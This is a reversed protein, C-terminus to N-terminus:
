GGMGATFAVFAAFLAAAGLVALRAVTRRPDFQLRQTVQGPGGTLTATGGRTWVDSVYGSTTRVSRPASLLLTDGRVALVRGELSVVAPLQLAARDPFTVVISRAPNFRMKVFTGASAPRRAAQYSFCGSAVCYAGLALLLRATAIM